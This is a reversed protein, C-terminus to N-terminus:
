WTRRTTRLRRAAAPAMLGLGSSPLAPDPPVARRQPALLDQPSLNYLLLCPWAQSGHRLSLMIVRHPLVPAKHFHENASKSHLSCVREGRGKLQHHVSCGFRLVCEMLRHLVRLSPSELGRSVLAMPKCPRAARSHARCAKSHALSLALEKVLESLGASAQGSCSESTALSAFMRFGETRFTGGQRSEFGPRGTFAPM